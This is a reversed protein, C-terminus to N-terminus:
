KQILYEPCTMTLLVAACVRDLKQDNTPAAPLTTGNLAAAITAETAESMQGACLVLNLRKVLAPADAVLLLEKAYDCTIDPQYDDWIAPVQTPAPVYVGWRIVNHMYNIYGGVATENIIQFEPATAKSVAFATNPPIYGPRFFNFVSPPNLPNQGLSRAPDSLDGLKWSNAASSVGLSRGWQLFRLMPERVKGFTPNAVNAPDRAEDDLFIATWVSKLDGRVGAGNNAFAAAVRGVYAASPNSTILRQIMQRAFFPGTNPHSFLRDLAIKLSQAATSNAPVTVGLFKAELSSHKNATVKMPKRAFDRSEVTWTETGGGDRFVPLRLGDSRDFDYGTFVRALQSVDASAYSEIRNGNADTRETGDPNLEYLGISFLQMVERAYNEDPLRGKSLDEKENGRTNLFHGMTPHLSVNELVQRFNGTVATNLMDWWSALAHSRWTFEASSMSIVFFESLALSLRKRMGDPATFLDKWIMFEAPYTNFFYRNVDNAGYGRADLWEWGTQVVPKAWQQQLYDAFTTARVAAIDQDSAALQSQLLFRAALADTTAQKFNNFGAAIPPPAPAVPAPPTSAPPVPAPAPGAAPPGAAPPASAVPAEAGGGGCAALLAAALAAAAIAGSHAAGGDAQGAAAISPEGPNSPVPCGDRLPTGHPLVADEVM